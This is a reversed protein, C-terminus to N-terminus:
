KSINRITIIYNQSSSCLKGIIKALRLVEERGFTKMPLIVLDILQNDNNEIRNLLSDCSKFSGTGRHQFYYYLLSIPSLLSHSM